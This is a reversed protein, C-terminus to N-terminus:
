MGTTPRSIFSEMASQMMTATSHTFGLPRNPRGTTVLTHHQLARDFRALRRDGGDSANRNRRPPDDQESGSQHEEGHDREHHLIEVDKLDRERDDVANCNEAEIEEGAEVPLEREAM